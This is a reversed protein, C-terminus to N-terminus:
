PPKITSSTLTTQSGDARRSAYPGGRNPSPATRVPRADRRTRKCRQGARPLSITKVGDAARYDRMAEPPVVFRNRSSLIVVSVISKWTIGSTTGFRPNFGTLVKVQVTKVVELPDAVGVEVM